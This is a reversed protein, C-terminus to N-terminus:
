LVGQELKKKLKKSKVRALDVAAQYTEPEELDVKEKITPHLAAMFKELKFYDGLPVDTAKQLQLWLGEFQQLFSSFEDKPDQKLRRMKATIEASTKKKGYKEM